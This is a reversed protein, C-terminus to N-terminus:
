RGNQRRVKNRISGCISDSVGLLNTLEELNGERLIFSRDHKIALKVIKVFM